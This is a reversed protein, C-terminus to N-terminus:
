VCAGNVCSYGEFCGDQCSGCFNPNSNLDVCYGVGCDTLGDLCAVGTCVGGQCYGGLACSNGCAGCNAADVALDICFGGCDTLGKAACSAEVCVGGQCSWSADILGYPGHQAPCANGCAGCNSADSSLNTCFGGCDTLGQAACDILSVGAPPATLLCVGSACSSGPGCVVGCGGCNDGDSLADVCVGGCDTLGADACTLITGEAPPGVVIQAARALESKSRPLLGGLLATGLLRLTTRRTGRHAVAAVWRDFTSADM